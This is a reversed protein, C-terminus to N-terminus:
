SEQEQEEKRDFEGELLNQSAELWAGAEVSSLMSEMYDESEWARRTAVKAGGLSAYGLLRRFLGM